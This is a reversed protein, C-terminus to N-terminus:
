VVNQLHSLSFHGLFEAWGLGILDPTQKVLQALNKLDKQVKVEKAEKEVKAERAQTEKKKKMRKRAIKVEKEVKAEKEERAEKEEKVPIEKKVEKVMLKKKVVKVEKEVKAEREEMGTQPRAPLGQDTLVRVLLPQNLLNKEEKAHVRTLPLWMFWLSLFYSCLGM